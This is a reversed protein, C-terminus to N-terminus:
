AFISLNRYILLNRLVTSNIHKTIHSWNTIMIQLGQHFGAECRDFLGPFTGGFHLVAVSEQLYGVRTSIESPEQGRRFGNQHSM